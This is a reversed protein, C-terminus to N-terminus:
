LSCSLLDMFVHAKEVSESRDQWIVVFEKLLIMKKVDVFRKGDKVSVAELRYFYMESAVTANWSVDNAM